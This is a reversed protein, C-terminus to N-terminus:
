SKQLYSIAKLMLTEGIGQRRYGDKVILSGIFGYNNASTTTIMGVPEDNLRAVYCGELELSILREFDAPSNGWNEIDTLSIAFPIDEITMLSVYIM